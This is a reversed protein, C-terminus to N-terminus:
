LAEISLRTTKEKLNIEHVMVHGEKAPYVSVETKGAYHPITRQVKKQSVNYINIDKSDDVILYSSRSDPNSVNYYSRHNMYYAFGTAPFVNGVPTPISGVLTLKGLSDQKVLTVSESSYKHTGGALFAIPPVILPATIIAGTICVWRPHRHINNAAFWTNGQFDRFCNQFYAYGRTEEFYGNKDVFSQSGDAWYSFNAHIDKKTHGAIMINFIGSFAGHVLNKGTVYSPGNVHAVITGAVFPKGTVPDNDFTLVKLPNGKRDKLVFKPYVSSDLSNYSLIEYDGQEFNTNTRALLSIDAGSTLMTFDIANERIQKQWMLKGATNYVVLNNKSDDGYFCAFGKGTINSLQIIQKLRGNGVVKRSSSPVDQSEPKIDLKITNKAIVKGDLSLFQTFLSSRANDIDRKFEKYNRYVKGVFNSKIYVLCLVDQDFSVGKLNLKEDRFNVTGIDNLNEDMISLRYNFSDASAKELQTFVLYGVLKGDQFITKFDQDMDETVAKFLKTQAHATGTTLLLLCLIRFLNQM